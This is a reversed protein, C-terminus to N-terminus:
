HRKKLLKMWFTQLVPVMFTHFNLASGEFVCFTGLM